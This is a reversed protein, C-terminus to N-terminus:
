RARANDPPTAPVEATPPAAAAAPAPPKNPPGLPVLVTVETISALRPDLEVLGSKFLGDPAPELQVIKGLAVGPPFTGGLGSTVLRKPANSSAFVDLPVFEVTGKAPGLSENLGGQFNIPRTEGEIAAALRVGPSSVLEVWATYLGVETVRGVVGGVFIVPAGAVLGHNAGKRILIRHWWATFDRRVVRAAEQRYEAFVPLRLLDELRAIEGRLAANEQIAVEYSSNLRALQQGAEILENKSRTRLSWFDQLDRVTSASVELPAQFEFFTLRALRKLVAPAVAWALLVAGLVVFPKAQDFRKSPM